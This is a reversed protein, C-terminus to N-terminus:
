AVNNSIIYIYLSLSFQLFAVYCSSVCILYNVCNNMMAICLCFTIYIIIYLIQSQITACKIYSVLYYISICLSFNAFGLMVHGQILFLTTCVFIVILLDVYMYYSCDKLCVDIYQM